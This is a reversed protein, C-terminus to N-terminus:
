RRQSSWHIHVIKWGKDGRKLVMTEVDTSAIEHGRFTGSTEARTLVWAVGGDVSIQRDVVKRRTGSSFEMDPGLHVSAYEDRSMEAGGGEFVVLAPDLFGLAADRNGSALAAHFADITAAPDDEATATFFGLGAFGLLALVTLSSVTLFTKTKWTM